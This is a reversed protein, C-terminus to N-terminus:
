PVYCPHKGIAGVQHHEYVLELLQEGHDALALSTGEEVQQGRRYSCTGNAEHERKAGVKQISWEAIGLEPAKELDRRHHESGGVGVFEGLGDHPRRLANTDLDCRLQHFAHDGLNM